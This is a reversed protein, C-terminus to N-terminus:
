DDNASVDVLPEAAEIGPERVGLVPLHADSDSRMIGDPVFYLQEREVSHCSEGM